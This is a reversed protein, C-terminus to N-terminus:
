ADSQVGCIGPDGDQTMLIRIYGKEGWNAGFSNKIIWYGPNISGDPNKSSIKYGVALVAHDVDTGCGKFDFIGSKYFMFEDTESDVAIPIPVLSIGYKM